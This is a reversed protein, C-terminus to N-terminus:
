RYATVAAPVSASASNPLRTGALTYARSSFFPLAQFLWYDVTIAPEFFNNVIDYNTTFNVVIPEKDLKISCSAGANLITSDGFYLGESFDLQPGIGIAFVNFFTFFLIAAVSLKKKM